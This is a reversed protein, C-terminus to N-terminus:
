YLNHNNKYAVELRKQSAETGLNSPLSEDIRSALQWDGVQTWCDNGPGLFAQSNYFAEPANYNIAATFLNLKPSHGLQLFYILGVPPGVFAYALESVVLADQM